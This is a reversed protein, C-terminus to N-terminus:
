YKLYGELLMCLVFGQGIPYHPHNLVDGWNLGLFRHDFGEYDVLVINKNTREYLAKLKTFTPTKSVLDVYAPVFIENQAELRNLRRGKWLHYLHPVWAGLPYKIPKPNNWGKQAWEWYEPTPNNEFDAYETYVKCFQYGNEISRAVYGDYLPMPGLFFPSFWKGDTKSNSTCDIIIANKPRPHKFSLNYLM